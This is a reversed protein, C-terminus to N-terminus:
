WWWGHRREQRWAAYGPGRRYLDRIYQKVVPSAHRCPPDHVYAHRWSGFGPGWYANAVQTPLAVLAAAIGIAILIRKVIRM